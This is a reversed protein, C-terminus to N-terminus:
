ERVRSLPAKLNAPDTSLNYIAESLGVFLWLLYSAHPGFLVSDDSAGGLLSTTLAFALVLAAFGLGQTAGIRLNSGITRLFILVVATLGILGLESLLCLYINHPSTGSSVWEQTLWSLAELTMTPFNGLGIGILPHSRWASLALLWSELRTVADWALSGIGEGTVKEELFPRFPGFLLLPVVASLAALGALAAKWRQKKRTTIVFLATTLALSLWASFTFTLLLGVLAVFTTLLWRSSIRGKGETWWLFVSVPLCLNFYHGLEMESTLVSIMRGRWPWFTERGHALSTEIRPNIIWFLAGYDRIAFQYFGYCAVLFTSFALVRFIQFAKERTDVLNLVLYCLGLNSAFRVSQTITFPLDNSRFVSLVLLGGLVAFCWNYKSTKLSQKRASLYFLFPIWAVVKLLEAAIPIPGVKFAFNFPILFVMVLLLKYPRLIFYSSGAVGV